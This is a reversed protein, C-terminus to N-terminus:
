LANSPLRSTNMALQLMLQVASPQERVIRRKEKRSLKKLRYEIRQAASRSGVAVAYVREISSFGRTARAGPSKGARHQRTRREIDTTIGTYYYSGDCDLIYIYWNSATMIFIM